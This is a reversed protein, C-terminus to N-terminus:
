LMEQEKILLINHGLVMIVTDAEKGQFAHITGINSSCFNSVKNEIKLKRAEQELRFRIYSSYNKYM